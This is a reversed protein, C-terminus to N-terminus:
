FMDREEGPAACSGLPLRRVTRGAPENRLSMGRQIDGGMTLMWGSTTRNRATAVRIKVGQAVAIRWDSYGKLVRWAAHRARGTAFSRVILSRNSTWDRYM